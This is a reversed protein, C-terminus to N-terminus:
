EDEEALCVLWQTETCIFQPTLSHIPATDTGLYLAYMITNEKEPLSVITRERIDNASEETHNM